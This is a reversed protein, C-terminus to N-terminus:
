PLISVEVRAAAARQAICCATTYHAAVGATEPAANEAPRAPVARRTAPDGPSAKARAPRPWFADRGALEGGAPRSSNLLAEAAQGELPGPGPLEM